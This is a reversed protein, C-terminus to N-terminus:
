TGDSKLPEQALVDYGSGDPRSSFFTLAEVRELWNVKEDLDKTPFTHFDESKFRALTVHPRHERSEGTGFAADLRRKCESLAESPEAEAWILRPEERTPGYLVRTFLLDFPTLGRMAQRVRMISADVDAEQWPPVLTLHLNEPPIWRVPLAALGGRWKEAEAQFAPSSKIGIFIRSM